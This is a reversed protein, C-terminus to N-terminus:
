AESRAPKAQPYAKIFQAVKQPDPDYVRTLTAGAEILGNCQGHIHGHDLAIAAIQFEGPACVAVPKSKPAHTM